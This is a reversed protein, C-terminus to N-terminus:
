NFTIDSSVKDMPCVSWRISIKTGAGGIEYRYIHNRLIFKQPEPNVAAPTMDSMLRVHYTATEPIAVGQLAADEDVKDPNSVTVSLYPLQASPIEPLLLYEWVYCSYVRCRDARKMTEVEDYVFRLGYGADSASASVSGDSALAPPLLYHSASTVSPYEVQRTEFVSNRRWQNEAPLLRATKMVGDISAGQIRPNDADRVPDFTAGTKINIKDIIELKAVARLMNLSKGTLYTLDIPIDGAQTEFWSGSVAFRQLGSMPFYAQRGAVAANLLRETDPLSNIVPTVPSTFMDALSHINDSNNLYGIDAYGSKSSYNALAMLYFDVIGAKNKRFYDTKSEDIKAVVEYLSYDESIASSRSEDIDPTLDLLFNGDKDFIYYRIDKLNIVNEAASGEEDGDIDPARSTDINRTCIQFRIQFSDDDDEVPVSPVDEFDKEIVLACSVVLSAAAALMATMVGINILHRVRDM